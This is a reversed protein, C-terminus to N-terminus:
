VIRERTLKQQRSPPAAQHPRRPVAGERGPGAVVTGSRPEARVLGEQRLATLAKAATAMAVGWEAAIRRTSPVKAGPALEGQAIRRRLETAIGQYRPEAPM